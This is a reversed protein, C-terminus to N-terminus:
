DFMEMFKSIINWDIPEEIKPPINSTDITISEVTGSFPFSVNISVIGDLKRNSM